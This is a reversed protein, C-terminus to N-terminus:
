IIKRVWRPTELCLHKQTLRKFFLRFSKTIRGSTDKFPAFKVVNNLIQHQFTFCDTTVDRRRVSCLNLEDKMSNTYFFFINSEGTTKTASFPKCKLIILIYFSCTFTLLIRNLLGFTIIFHKFKSIVPLVQRVSYEPLSSIIANIQSSKSYDTLGSAMCIAALDSMMEKGAKYLNRM